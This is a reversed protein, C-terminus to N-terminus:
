EGQCSRPTDRELCGKIWADRAILWDKLLNVEAAYTGGRPGYDSWAEFNRRAAEALELAMEDVIALVANIELTTGLLEGLRAWYADAFEPDAFLELYWGYTFMPTTDSTINTADWWTPDEPRDDDACGMSRDFDWIPGAMIAGERDKHMFASLRLADVNKPYMNLIHNDIWVSVDIQDRYHVGEYQHDEAALALALRDITDEFYEFQPRNLADEEPDVFVLPDSFAFRGGGDGAWSGSEDAGVRDRKFLYGGTVEPQSIDGPGLETIAVRDPGRKVAEMLVYVGQYAGQGLSRGGEVTFLEVFRTRPAYLGVENSLRFALANRIFARDFGLPAYLVWDSDAPLGLLPEDGDDDSGSERLEISYSHKPDYATSSGREKLAARTTLGAEGLLRARGDDGPSFALFGTNIYGYEADELGDDNYVVLLPLNSTFDALDPGLRVYSEAAYDVLGDSNQLLVRLEASETLTLPGTWSADRVTPASGDLTYWAEEGDRISLEVTVADVFGGGRPELGADPPPPPPPTGPITEIDDTPPGSDDVTTETQGRNQPGFTVPTPTCGYILAFLSSGVM